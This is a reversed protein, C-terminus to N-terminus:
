ESLFLKWEAIGHANRLHAMVPLEKPTRPVTILELRAEHPLADAKRQSLDKSWREFAQRCATPWRPPM